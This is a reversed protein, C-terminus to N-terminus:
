ATRIKGLQFANRRLAKKKHFIGAQQLAAGTQSAATGEKKRTRRRAM